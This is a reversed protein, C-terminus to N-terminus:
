LSPSLLFISPKYIVTAPSFHNKEKTDAGYFYLGAISLLQNIITHNFSNYGLIQHTHM